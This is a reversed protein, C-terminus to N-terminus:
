NAPPTYTVIDVTKDESVVAILSDPHKRLYRIASNYRAGRAPNEGDGAEGDLIMGIGHCTGELDVLIGGDIASAAAITTENPTFPKIGKTSKTLRAAETSANASVILMAGHEANMAYEILDYLRHAAGTPLGAFKAEIKATEEARSARPKPLSPEGYLVEMLVENRHLLRWHSQGVFRVILVDATQTLHLKEDYRAWGWVLKSDTLLSLEGQCMELFKRVRRIETVPFPEQLEIVIGAAFHGPKAIVMSNFGERSEYRMGAIANCVEFFDALGRSLLEQLTFDKNFLAHTQLFIAGAVRAMERASDSECRFRRGADKKQLEEAFRHLVVDVVTYHLSPWRGHDRLISIDLHPYKEYEFRGYTAVVAVIRGNVVWCPSVKVMQFSPRLEGEIFERFASACKSLYEHHDGFDKAWKDDPLEPDAADDPFPPIAGRLLSLLDEFDTTDLDREDPVITTFGHHPDFGVLFVKPEINCGILGLAENLMAKCATLYENEFRFLKFAAM